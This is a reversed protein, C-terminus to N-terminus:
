LKPLWRRATKLHAFRVYIMRSSRLCCLCSVIQCSDQSHVINFDKDVFTYNNQASISSKLVECSRKCSVQTADGTVRANTYVVIYGSPSTAVNNQIFTSTPEENIEVHMDNITWQEASSDASSPYSNSGQISWKVITFSQGDTSNKWGYVLDTAVVRLDVTSILDDKVSHHNFVAEGGYLGSGIQGQAEADPQEPVNGWEPNADDYLAAYDSADDGSGSGSGSELDDQAAVGRTVVVVLACWARM